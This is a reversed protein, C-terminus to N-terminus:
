RSSVIDLTTNQVTCDTRGPPLVPRVAPRLGDKKSDTSRSPYIRLVPRGITNKRNCEGARIGMFKLNMMEDREHKIGRCIM